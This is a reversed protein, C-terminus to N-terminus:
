RRAGEQVEYFQKPGPLQTLWEKEIKTASLVYEREPTFVTEHFVIWEPPAKWLASNPNLHLEAGRRSFFLFRLDCTLVCVSLMCVSLVCVPLVSLARVCLCGVCVSLVCVCVCVCVNWLASNPNLHLEARRHLSTFFTLGLCCVCVVCV